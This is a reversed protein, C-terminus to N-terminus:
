QGPRSSNAWRFLGWVAVSGIVTFLGAGYIYLGDGFLNWGSLMLALVLSFWGAVWLVALILLIGWVLDLEGKKRVSNVLPMICRKAKSLVRNAFDPTLVLKRQKNALIRTL